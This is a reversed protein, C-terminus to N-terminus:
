PGVNLATVRTGWNALSSRTGGCSGIAGTLYGALNCASAIAENAIFITNGDVAAAGYDGWRPRIPNPASFARYESFGDQPATGEAIVVVDGPGAPSNLSVYAASPYHDDGVLTFGIVGKGADTWGVAGYIANNHAIAVHGQRVLFASLTGTAVNPQIAFFAIGAKTQGGVSVATDLTGWIVGRAFTTSLIRTDSSDLGGEVENHQPEAALLLRWCGVGAVTATTTDNICQGLPFDGAKQNARPPNSYQDVGVITNNLSLAPTNGIRLSQTNTLAWVAIRNDTLTPNVEEGAMSSLFYETGGASLDYSADTPSYAPFVTFGANGGVMGITDFQIVQITTAGSALAKKGMAYVQAAHFTPGFLDYENTTIYFGNQDAGIHPFDGICANPNTKTARPAGPLCHHNPTGETGDDQAALRYINWSGRPDSTQSVALDLHNRGTFQGTTPVVELTLVVHFWRQRQQDYLCSPDTVFPGEIGTTRNFQPAYGYFTNLDVVGTLPTGSGDFVRLVDNVSELVFGNGACLGQDPPELSFQNGGNALRQQRHNLGLFSSQVTPQSKTNATDVTIGDIVFGSSATFSRGPEPSGAEAPDAPAFEPSQIADSGEALAAFSATGDLTILRGSDAAASGAFPGMSACILVLSIAM